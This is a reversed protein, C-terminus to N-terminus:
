PFRLKLVWAEWKRKFAAMDAAGLVKKLTNYGTPDTKCAARFAHYYAMLKGHEQLWYCLYRAQSYNTGPDLSYFEDATTGSLTRFSPVAKRRIAKQLGALRWNTGGHIHGNKESCQEYLSALGENFWAPCARFNAAMFPHVIEHVLTGGGTKINMVLARHASSYYGYPTKPKDGFLELAHRRYSAEDKFLWIDIIESPETTFYDKKIMDVAWKVTHRARYEVMNVLGGRLRRDPEDGIVVFPRQIVLRFGRKAPIKKKLKMVHQAFDANTLGQGRRPAVIRGPKLALRIVTWDTRGYKLPWLDLFKRRAMRRYAGGRAGPEHYIVEDAKPDYGLVLRFHEAAGPKEDWRMCVISATGQVLDAHMAKFRAEIEARARSVKIRDIVKGPEFGVARVAATLERTHCGRAHIPDLGSANFVDGQTIKHGLKRLIMEVCAEGCFDTKQRVHPVGEILMAAYKAAPTTTSGAAVAAGALVTLVVARKIM